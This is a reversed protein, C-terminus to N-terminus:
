GSSNSGTQMQVSFLSCEVLYINLVSRMWCSIHVVLFIIHAHEAHFDKAVYLSPQQGSNAGPCSIDVSLWTFKFLIRVLHQTAECPLKESLWVGIMRFLFGRMAKM